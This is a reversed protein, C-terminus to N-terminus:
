QGRCASPRRQIMTPAPSPMDHTQRCFLPPPAPSLFASRHDRVFREFTRGPAGTIEIVASSVTRGAGTQLWRALATLNDALWAPLGNGILTEHYRELPLDVYRISTDLVSSLHAAVQTYSLAQPGTLTYTRGEHGGRVLIEAAVAAVDRADIFPIQADGLAGFFLGDARITDATQLLHQMCVHPRLLTTPVGATRLQAETIAHWRALPVPAEPGAGLASVKVVHISRGTRQIAEVVNGQLVVQDPAPPSLLFVRDIGDLTVDLSTPSRLPAVVPAVFSSEVAAAQTRDRVLARVPVRRRSLERLLATGLTGTRAGIVLTSSFM